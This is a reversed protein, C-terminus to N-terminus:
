ARAGTSGNEWLLWRWNFWHALATCRATVAAGACEVWTGDRSRMCMLMLKQMRCSKKKKKKRRCSWNTLFFFVQESVCAAAHSQYFHSVRDSSWQPHQRIVASVCSAGRGSLYAGHSSPLFFSCMKRLLDCPTSFFLLLLRSPIHNLKEGLTSVHNKLSKCLSPAASFGYFLFWLAIVFM